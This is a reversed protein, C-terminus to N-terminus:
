EQSKPYAITCKIISSSSPSAIAKRGIKLGVCWHIETDDHLVLVNQKRDATIKNDSIIDSILQSGRLGVPSIRDGISWPRITLEGAIKEADLYIVGKNFTKPLSNVEEIQVSAAPPDTGTLFTLRDSDLVVQTFASDNESLLHVTAGKQKMKRVELAISAPQNLQRFLEILEFDTLAFFRELSITHNELLTDVDSQVSSELEGQKEQFAHVLIKVSESLEPIGKKLFPIIENRLLNRRYKSNANSIDERWEIGTSNAYKKLDEKSFHLLPRIIGENETPMCSLGMVGSKRGLNLFFTEVQDDQHHALAVKNKVDQDIINRFWDYRFNRALKQLNGGERLQVNLNV